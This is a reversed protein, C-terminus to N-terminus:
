ILRSIWFAHWIPKILLMIRIKTVISTILIRFKIWITNFNTNFAFSNHNYNQWCNWITLNRHRQMGKFRSAKETVSYEGELITEIMEDVPEEMAVTKELVDAVFEEEPMEVFVQEEAVVLTEEHMVEQEARLEEEKLAITETIRKELAAKDYSEGLSKGRIFKKM